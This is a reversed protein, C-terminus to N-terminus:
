CRKKQYWDSKAMQTYNILHCVPSAIPWNLSLQHKNFLLHQWFMFGFTALCWCFHSVKRKEQGDTNRAAIIDEWGNKLQNYALWFLWRSQYKSCMRFVICLEAVPVLSCIHSNLGKRTNLSPLKVWSLILTRLGVQVDGGELNDTKKRLFRWM